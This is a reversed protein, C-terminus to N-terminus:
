PIKRPPFGLKTASPQGTARVRAPLLNWTPNLNLLLAQSREFAGFGGHWVSVTLLWHYGLKHAGLEPLSCRLSAM